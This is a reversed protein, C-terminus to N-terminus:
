SVVVFQPLLITKGWYTARTVSVGTQDDTQRGALCELRKGADTDIASCNAFADVFALGPQIEALQGSTSFPHHEEIRLDGTFLAEATKLLDM